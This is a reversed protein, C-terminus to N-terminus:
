TKMIQMKINKIFANMNKFHTGQWYIKNCHECKYYKRQIESVKKPLLYVIEKKSIHKLKNGCELCLTFPKIKKILQFRSTVELVQKKPDQNRIFYGHTVCKRKLIGTDRTLITRKEKLSVNVIEDDTINKQYFTDIGMLRLNRALKGLHVDCIFKPKRLPEKRLKQINSIDFSEFKPYVSIIDNDKVRYYFNVSKGNVLILDVETHPVGLSEIMDKVAPQGTFQHIFQIKRKNEPLFDNLEEYFRLYAIKM